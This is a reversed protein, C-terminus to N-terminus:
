ADFPRILFPSFLSRVMLGLSAGTKNPSPV